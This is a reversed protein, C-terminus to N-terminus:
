KPIIVVWQTGIFKLKADPDMLMQRNMPSKMFHWMLRCEDSCFVRDPSWREEIPKVCWLCHTVPVSFCLCREKNRDEYKLQRAKIRWARKKEKRWKKGCEDKCFKQRTRYTTFEEGCCLCKRITKKRIIKTDANAKRCSVSCFKQNIRRKKFTEGCYLCKPTTDSM